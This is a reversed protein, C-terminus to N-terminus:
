EERGLVQDLMVIFVTAMIPIGAFVLLNLQLVSSGGSASSGLISLIAIILIFLVPTIVMLTVYIEGIYTLGNMRNKLEERKAELAKDVEFTLIAKLDGSTQMATRLSAIQKSFAKSPSFHEMDKLATKVDMGFLKVNLAFKNSLNVLPKNEEIEGIREIIREISMGSASLVTMYSLYYLLGGELLGKAQGRSYLPFILAFTLTLAGGIMAGSFGALVLWRTLILGFFLSRILIFGVGVVVGMVIAIMLSRQAYDEVDKKLGAEHYIDKFESWFNYAVEDLTSRITQPLERMLRMFAERAETM